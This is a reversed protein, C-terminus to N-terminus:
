LSFALLALCSRGSSFRSRPSSPSPSRGSIVRSSRRAREVAWKSKVRSSIPFCPRSKGSELLSIPQCSWREHASSSLGAQRSRPTRARVSVQECSGPCPSQSASRCSTRDSFERKGWMLFFFSNCAPLPSFQECCYSAAVVDAVAGNRPELM